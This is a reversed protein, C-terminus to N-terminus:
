TYIFIFKANSIFKYCKKVLRFTGLSLFSYAPDYFFYVSSICTPLIDIVGVAILQGNLWYQQHFSGYGQEPGDEPCYKKSTIVNEYNILIKLFLCNSM